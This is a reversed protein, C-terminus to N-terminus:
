ALEEFIGQKNQSLPQADPLPEKGFVDNACVVYPAKPKPPNLFARGDVPKYEKPKDGLRSRRVLRM